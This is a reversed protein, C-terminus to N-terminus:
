QKYNYEYEILTNKKSDQVKILRGFGDYEYYEKGGRENEKYILGKIPDYLYHNIVAEKLDSSQKLLTNVAEVDEQLPLPADGIQKIKNGLLSRISSYSTNAVVWIPLSRNYGWIYNTEFGTKDRSSLLNHKSDYSLFDVEKEWNGQKDQKEINKLLPWHALAFVPPNLVNDQLTIIPDYPNVTFDRWGLAEYWRAYNNKQGFVRENNVYYEEQVIPAIINKKEMDKYVTQNLFDFPYKYTTKYIKDGIKEEKEVVTKYTDNYKYSSEKKVISATGNYDIETEKTLYPTYTYILSAVLSFSHLDGTGAIHTANEYLNVTRIHDEFRNPNENYQYIVEKIKEGKKDINNKIPKYYAKSLLQGRELGMSIVDWNQWVNKLGGRENLMQTDHSFSSAYNLIPKDHYGNDYNKYKYIVFSEDMDDVETVESYTIHNGRLRHAPYIDETSWRKYDLNDRNVGITGKTIDFYTPVHTLIGSPTPTSGEYGKVYKYSTSKTLINNSDFSKVSKIRVGGAPKAENNYNSEVVFPYNKALAGYMNSEYEFKTVGGTPYTIETLIEWTNFRSIKPKRNEIYANRKTNDGILFHLTNQGELEPYSWDAIYGPYDKNDTYFGYDDKNYMTSIPSDVKPMDYKFAYKEAQQSGTDKIEFGLLKRRENQTETYAFDISKEIENKNNYVVINDLQRFGRMVSNFDLDYPLLGTAVRKHILQSYTFGNPGSSYPGVQSYDYDNFMYYLGVSIYKVLSKEVRYEFVLRSTPTKIERLNSPATVTAQETNLTNNERTFIGHQSNNLWLSKVDTFIRTSYNPHEKIYEFTIEETNPFIIKTLHWATEKGTMIRSMADEFNIMGCIRQQGQTVCANANYGQYTVEISNTHGGFIYEIGNDDVISFSEIGIAKNNTGVTKFKIEKLEIKKSSTSRFKAKNHHDFYIEGSYDLFDIAFVYNVLRDVISFGFFINKSDRPSPLFTALRSKESWNDAETLVAESGVRQRGNSDSEDVKSKILSIVGGSTLHWGLGVPGAESVVKTGMGSHYKLAIPLSFDRYKVTHIPMTVDVIGIFNSPSFDGFTRFGSVSPSNEVNSYKGKNYGQIVASTTQSFALPTILFLFVLKMKFCLRKNLFTLFFQKIIM